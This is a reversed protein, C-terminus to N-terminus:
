GEGGGLSTRPLTTGVAEPTLKVTVQWPAVAHWARACSEVSSFSRPEFITATLARLSFRWLLRISRAERLMETAAPLRCFSVIRSLPVPWLSSPRKPRNGTVRVIRRSVVLGGVTVVLCVVILSFFLLLTM